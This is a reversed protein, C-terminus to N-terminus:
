QIKEEKPHRKNGQESPGDRGISRGLEKKKATGPTRGPQRETFRWNTPATKGRSREHKPEFVKKSEAGKEFKLIDPYM